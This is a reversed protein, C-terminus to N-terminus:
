IDLCIVWVLMVHAEARTTITIVGSIFCIDGADMLTNALPIRLPPSNLCKKENGDIM